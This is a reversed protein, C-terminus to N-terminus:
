ESWAIREIKTSASCYNYLRYLVSFVSQKKGYLFNGQKRTDCRFETM